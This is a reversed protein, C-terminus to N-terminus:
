RGCTQGAEREERHGTYIAVMPASMTGEWFRRTDAFDIVASGSPSRRMEGQESLALPCINETPILDNSVAHGWSM